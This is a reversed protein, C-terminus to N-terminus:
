LKLSDNRVCIEKRQVIYIGFLYWRTKSPTIARKELVPIGFIKYQFKLKRVILNLGHHAAFEDRIAWARKSDAKRRLKFADTRATLLSNERHRYYYVAGPVTVIKNAWYVAQFSFPLDEVFRLSEDFRLEKEDIFSRKFLYRVSYGHQYVGTLMMKDEPIIVLMREDFKSSFYPMREHIFSCCVMDADTAVATAVMREYFDINVMDDVDMFHIYDGTAVAIGANRTASPGMNEPNSVVRVPYRAAIAVSDDTSGDDVVIIELNSYTQCLLNGICQAVYKERNYCPVIVSIKM